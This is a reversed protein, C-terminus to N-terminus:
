GAYNSGSCIQEKPTGDPYLVGIRILADEADKPHMNPIESTFKKMDEILEPINSEKIATM